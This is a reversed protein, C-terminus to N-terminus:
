LELFRIRQEPLMLECQQQKGFWRYRHKAVFDYISNRIIRPITILISAWNWPTRLNRCIRLVADSKQYVINDEILIISSLNQPITDGILEQATKSQLSAFQFLENKERKIIFKVWSNCLNCVGDFLVISNPSTKQIQTDISKNSIVEKSSMWLKEVDFFALFILGTMQYRFSIGMIFFIGWHMMWTLVAWIMGWKRKFLAIPAGLELVFTLIGMGLFLWTHEFLIEFLPAAESGLMEKRIADVAVQSRMATGTVWEWALEGALKAVGSLFYAGVTAACILQIPWGYQWHTKPNSIGKKSKRWADWSWADASAVFGIILVHLILANRNHYIMSWSNRYTFFVLAAIAFAPGTFKFKWGIIYLVNLVIVGITIWWFIEPSIPYNMWSLVGIPEFADKNNVIKQLMDFRSLLYWLSFLGTAIRLVALRQPPVQMFWNSRIKELYNKM